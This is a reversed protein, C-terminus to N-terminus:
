DGGPPDWRMKVRFGEQHTVCFGLREYLRRARNNGWVSLTVPLSSRTAQTQVEHVIAQGVGQGQWAPRIMLRKIFMCDETAELILQGVANGGIEIIQSGAVSEGVIRQRVRRDWTFHTEVLPRLAGSHIEL